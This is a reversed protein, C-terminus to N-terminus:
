ADQRIVGFNFWVHGLKENLRIWMPALSEMARCATLDGLDIIDRWGFSELLNKVEARAGADNAALFISSIGDLKEPHGMLHASPFNMAKVVRTRPLARQLSEGLTDVIPSDIASRWNGIDILLKGALDLPVLTAMADEGHLANVIWDGHAAADAHSLVPIGDRDSGPHRSGFVTDHGLSKLKAAVATGVEGTGFVSINM